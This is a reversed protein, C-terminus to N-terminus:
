LPGAVRGSRAGDVWEPWSRYHLYGGKELSMNHAEHYFTPLWGLSATLLALPGADAVAVLLTNRTSIAEWM